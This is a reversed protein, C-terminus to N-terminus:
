VLSAEDSKIVLNDVDLIGVIDLFNFNDPRRIWEQGFLSINMDDTVFGSMMFVGSLVNPNEPHASFYFYATINGNSYSNIILDLSTIGQNATYEGSWTGLLIYDMSPQMPEPPENQSIIGYGDIPNESDVDIIATTDPSTILEIAQNSFIMSFVFIAIAMAGAWATARSREKIAHRISNIGLILIIIAFGYYAITVFM